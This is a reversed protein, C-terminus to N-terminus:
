IFIMKGFKKGEALKSILKPFYELLNIRILKERIIKTEDPTSSRCCATLISLLVGFLSSHLQACNSMVETISNIVFVLDTRSALKLDLIKLILNKISYTAIIHAEVVADKSTTVLKTVGM